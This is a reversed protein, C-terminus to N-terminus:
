TRDSETRGMEFARILCHVSISVLGVSILAGVTLGVGTAWGPLTALAGRVKGPSIVYAGLAIVVPAGAAVSQGLYVWSRRNRALVLGAGTLGVLLAVGLRALLLWKLSIAGGHTVLQRSSGVFGLVAAVFVTGAVCALALGQAEQFRGRAFLVGMVGAVVTVTEFGFLVWNVRPGAFLAGGALALASLATAACLVGIVLSVLKPPSAMLNRRRGDVCVGTPRVLASDTRM